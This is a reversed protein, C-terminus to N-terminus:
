NQGVAPTTTTVQRDNPAALVGAKLKDKLRWSPGRINKILSHHLMRDLIATALIADGFLEGWVGFTKNSTLILSRHEYRGSILQYFLNSRLQDLPLYGVEDIVLLRPNLYKRMRTDLHNDIHAKRLDGVLRTASIFYASYGHSIAEITM